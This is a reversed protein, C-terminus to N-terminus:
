WATAIEALDEAHAANWATKAQEQHALHASVSNTTLAVGPGEGGSIQHAILAGYTAQSHNSEWWWRMPTRDGEAPFPEANPGEWGAFDLLTPM